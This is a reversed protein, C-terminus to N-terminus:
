DALIEFEATCLKKDVDGVVVDVNSGWRYELGRVVRGDEGEMVFTLMLLFGLIM